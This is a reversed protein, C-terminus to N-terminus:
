NKHNSNTGVCQKIETILSDYHSYVLEIKGPQVLNQVLFNERLQQTNMESTEKPSHQFRIQM